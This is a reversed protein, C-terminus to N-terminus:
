VCMELVKESENGRKHPGILMVILHRLQLGKITLSIMVHVSCSISTDKSLPNSIILSVIVHVKLDTGEQTGIWMNLEDSPLEEPIDIFIDSASESMGKMLEPLCNFSSFSNVIQREFDFKM